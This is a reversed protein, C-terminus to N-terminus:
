FSFDSESKRLSVARQDKRPAIFFLFRISPISHENHLFFHFLFVRSLSGEHADRSQRHLKVQEDSKSWQGEEILEWSGTEAGLRGETVPTILKELICIQDCDWKKFDNKSESHSSAWSSLHPLCDNGTQRWHFLDTALWPARHEVTFSQATKKSKYFGILHWRKLFGKRVSM